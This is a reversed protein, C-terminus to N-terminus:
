CLLFQRYESSIIKFCGSKLCSLHLVDSGRCLNCLRLFTTAAATATNSILPRCFQLRQRLLLCRRSHRRHRIPDRPSSINGGLITKLLIRPDLGILLNRLRVHGFFCHLLLRRLFLKLIPRNSRPPLRLFARRLALPGCRHFCFVRSTAVNNYRKM